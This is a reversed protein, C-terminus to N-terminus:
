DCWVSASAIPRRQTKGSDPFTAPWPWFRRARRTMWWRVTRRDTREYEERSREVERLKDNWEAELSDAVLRNDPDVQMYRRRALEAEYRVRAVQQYRLQDAQEINSQVQEQVLLAVELAHPQVVELLVEGIADDISDGPISQCVPKALRQETGPCIYDPSLRGRRHHYRVTMAKGCKGCM